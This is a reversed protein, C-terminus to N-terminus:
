GAFVIQAKKPVSTSAAMAPLGGRALCLLLDTRYCYWSMGEPYRSLKFKGTRTGLGWAAQM